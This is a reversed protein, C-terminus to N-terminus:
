DGNMLRLVKLLIADRKAILQQVKDKTWSYFGRGAKVGTFGSEVLNELKPSPVPSNDLYPFLYKQVEYTLDLGALDATEFPGIFCLRLGFGFKVVKDVDEASAVGKEVLSIAERWMAHQLRNGLFGPVDRLVRVPEKKVRKMLRCVGEFVEESTYLGKVIEVCPLIHPPNWFHTGVFRERYSLSESLETISIASTNTCVVTESGIIHELERFLEKKLGKNENIAEIIVDASGAAESISSCVRINELCQNARSNDTIGLLMFIELNKKIRQRLTKLADDNADYVSVRYGEHAFIQAIGHGMLGAGIIGINKVSDPQM